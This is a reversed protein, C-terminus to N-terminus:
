TGSGGSSGFTCGPSTVLCSGASPASTALFTAMLSVTEDPLGLTAMGSTWFFDTASAALMRPCAPSLADFVVDSGDSVTGLSWTIRVSGGDPVSTSLPEFTVSTTDDPGACTVTGDTLARVFTAASSAM